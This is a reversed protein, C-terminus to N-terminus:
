PNSIIVGIIVKNGDPLTVCQKMVCYVERRVTVDFIKTTGEEQEMLFKEQRTVNAADTQDLIHSIDQNLVHLSHTHTHAIDMMFTLFTSNIYIYTLNMDKVFVPVPARATVASIQHLTMHRLSDFFLKRFHEIELLYKPKKELGGNGFSSTRKRKLSQPDDLNQHVAPFCGCNSCPGGSGRYCNCESGCHTCASRRKGYVVTFEPNEQNEHDEQNEAPPSPYHNTNNNESTTNQGPNNTAGSTQISNSAFSPPLSEYEEFLHEAWLGNSFDNDPNLLDDFTHQSGFGAASLLADGKNQIFDNCLEHSNFDEFELVPYESQFTRSLDPVPVFRVPTPAAEQVPLPPQTVPTSLASNTVTASSFSNAVPSPSSFSNPSFFSNAAPAPSSFSNPASSFSNPPSSFSNPPPSFSNPASSFSNPPSSFSNPPSSFSNPPSSFSNLTSPFSNPPSSLSCNVTPPSPFNTPTATFSPPLLPAPNSVPQPNPPVDRGAKRTEASHASGTGGRFILEVEGFTLVQEGRKIYVLLIMMDSHKHFVARPRATFKVKLTVASFDNFYLATGESAVIQAVKSFPLERVPKILKSRIKLSLYVSNDNPNRPKDTLIHSLQLRKVFEPKFRLQVDWLCGKRIEPRTFIELDPVNQPIAPPRNFANYTEQAFSEM